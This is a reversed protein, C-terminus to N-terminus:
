NNRELLTVDQALFWSYFRDADLFQPPVASRQIYGNKVSLGGWSEEIAPCVRYARERWEGIPICRSLRGSFGRRGRVVIDDDSIVPWRTHANEIQRCPTVTVAPVVENVVFLGVLGYLLRGPPLISRMGSYFVLVDGNGLKAVGAGRRVGNDGYTLHQFDPDLHMKCGLLDPPCHLDDWAFGRGTMFDSLPKVVESFLRVGGHAHEKDKGDPIPVYVFEATQPDVPANWSGYAKDIGIRVLIAKM